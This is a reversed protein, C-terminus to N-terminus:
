PPIWIKVSLPLSCPKGNLLPFEKKIDQYVKDVKALWLGIDDAPAEDEADQERALSLAKEYAERLRKFGEPDDEPNTSKLLTLYASRIRSEEKTPEIGLVHFILEKEM